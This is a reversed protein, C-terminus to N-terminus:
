QREAKIRELMEVVAQKSEPGVDAHWYEGVFGPHILKLMEDSPEGTEKRLEEILHIQDARPLARALDVVEQLSM